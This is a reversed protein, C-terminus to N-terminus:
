YKRKGKIFSTGNGINNYTCDIQSHWDSPHWISDWLPICTGYPGINNPGLFPPKYNSRRGYTRRVNKKRLSKDMEDYYVNCFEKYLVDISVQSQRDQEIKEICHLIAHQATDSQLFQDSINSVVYRTYYRDVNLHNGEYDLNNDDSEDYEDMHAQQISYHPNITFELLSHDTLTCGDVNCNTMLERALHVHFDTISKLNCYPVILFDVVASGRGPDVFTFNDNEPNVRGNVICLQGDKLFDILLDGHKNKGVDLVKRSPVKLDIGEIHEQNDGFRSNLDGMIYMADVDAYLYM